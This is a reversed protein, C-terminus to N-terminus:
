VLIQFKPTGGSRIRTQVRRVRLAAFEREREICIYIYIDTYRYIYM